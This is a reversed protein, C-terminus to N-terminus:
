IIREHKVHIKDCRSCKIKNLVIPERHANQTFEVSIRKYDHIGMWCKIKDLIKSM